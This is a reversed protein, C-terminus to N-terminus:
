ALSNLIRKIKTQSVKGDTEIGSATDIAIPKLKLFKSINQPNIGGAIMFPHNFDQLLKLNAEKASGPKPGDFLIYAVHPLFKEALKLDSKNNLKITKIVPKSCKKIFDITEQGCLQIFDLNQAVKKITSLPQDQFIGVKKITTQPIKGKFQRKSTSVFNLGIFDVGSKECFKIDKQTRIGCAKFKPGVLNQITQGQMLSTGVLIADVKNPIDKSTYIGSESVILRGKIKPALKDTTKLDIKFTHLDRNNIGIIKVPTELAKKLEDETHVECLVDMNYKGALKTFKTIQESTLVAAILLVADAGHKRAQLIQNEHIIFDKCLLPTFQTAKFAQELDKLSGGFHDEDCLVSIADAGSQEYKRAIIPPNFKQTAIQGASPSKKKVEAIISTRGTQIARYFDRTSKSLKGKPKSPEAKNSVIKLLISPNAHGSRLVEKARKYAKKLSIGESLNLALAANVLVLDEHRSRCKGALITQAIKTNMAANGGRINRFKTAKIGFDSPKISSHTLKGNQLKIIQTKGTLTVEDLGDEGCVVFVKEKGLLKCTEAILEMKDSFATGIIQRKANVPSLLPGLINFFTPKGIKQRVPAFHKMVPHFSRAYLFVLNGCVVPKADINIGLNELLDFSGFRGSAARNGHKAVKVGLAGLLFTSITSTNIRPLGSGGTGCVDIADPFSIQHPMQKQLFRVASALEKASPNQKEILFKEQEELNLKGTITQKLFDVIQM